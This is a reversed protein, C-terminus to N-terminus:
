GWLEVESPDLLIDEYYPEDLAKYRGTPAGKEDMVPEETIAYRVVVKSKQVRIVTGVIPVGRGPRFRATDGENIRRGSRDKPPVYTSM